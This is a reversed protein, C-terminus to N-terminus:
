YDPLLHTSTYLIMVTMKQRQPRVSSEQVLRMCKHRPYFRYCISLSWPWWFSRRFTSLSPCIRASFNSWRDSWTYVSFDGFVCGYFADNSLMARVCRRLAIECAAMMQEKANRKFLTIITTKTTIINHLLCDWIISDLCIIHRTMPTTEPYILIAWCYSSGTDRFYICKNRPAGPNSFRIM